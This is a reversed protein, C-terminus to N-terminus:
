GQLAVLKGTWVSAAQSIPAPEARRGINARWAWAAITLFVVSMPTSTVAM